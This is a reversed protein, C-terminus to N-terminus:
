LTGKGDPRRLRTSPGVARLQERASTPEVGDATRRAAFAYPETVVSEAKRVEALRAEASAKEAFLAAGALADAWSGDDALYAVSGERTLSGTIVFCTESSATMDPTDTEPM